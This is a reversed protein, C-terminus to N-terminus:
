KPGAERKVLEEVANLPIAEYPYPPKSLDQWEFGKAANFSFSEPHNQLLGKPDDGAVISNMSRISGGRGKDVTDEAYSFAVPLKCNRYVCGEVLTAGGCLSLTAHNTDEVLNNLFHVNGWRLRPARSVLDHFWCQQITVNLRGQDEGRATESPSNGILMCKKHPKGSEGAFICRSITVLDAGHIVDLQGDYVRGFDCRDVWVRRSGSIQVYDWGMEDYEGTPDNEWLDRFRLNRIIVNGVGKLEITGAKLTAGGPPGEITTNSRPRVIGVKKLDRGPKGNALEGLDIDGALRVVRPSDDRRAKREDAREVAEQFEKATHVIVPKVEGGGSAGGERSAFGPSGAHLLPTLFFLILLNRM